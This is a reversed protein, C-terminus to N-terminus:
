PTANLGSPRRNAVTLTSRVTRSHSRCRCIGRYATAPWVSLSLPTHREAGVSSALNRGSPTVVLRHAEPRSDSSRFHQAVFQSCIDAVRLPPLPDGRVDGVDRKARVQRSPGVSDRLRRFRLRRKRHVRHRLIERRHACTARPSKPETLATSPSVVLHINSAAIPGSPLPVGM